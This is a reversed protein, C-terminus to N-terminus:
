RASFVPESDATPQTRRTYKLLLGELSMGPVRLDRVYPQLDKWEWKAREQFLKSFREAPVSSLSSVSFAHVWAEIGITETLVEGELMEFSADMGDPIKRRWEEMFGEVKMKKGGRLIERAFHVCIKKEDMRWVSGEEEEDRVAYVELCHRAIKKPFGDGELVQLVDNEVLADLSWNKLVSNHLLMNLLGDMYKGDLIRWYGNIEAAPLAQLGSRLEEDSAQVSEVLDDWTYLSESIDMESAKDEDDFSYPNKSLLMKLKDLRPAVEVLEMCSPAVKLVSSVVTTKDNSSLLTTADESISQDTPPILCVSNSTGVFKLAYTKSETCLVADEDPQGRLTVSQHLFDPVLKEDLELLMLDDHPGFLPHYAISVSTNPQLKLVAEAGGQVPEM